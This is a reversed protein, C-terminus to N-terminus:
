NPSPLVQHSFVRLKITWNVHKVKIHPISPQPFLRDQWEKHMGSRHTLGYAAVISCLKGQHCDFLTCVKDSHISVFHETHWHPIRANISNLLEHKHFANLPEKCPFYWANVSLYTGAIWNKLFFTITNKKLGGCGACVLCVQQVLLVSVQTTM